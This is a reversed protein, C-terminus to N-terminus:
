GHRRPCRRLRRRTSSQQQRNGIRYNNYRTIAQPGTIIQLSAISELPVMDGKVNRIYINWLDQVQRRHAADGELNVQWTRDFLNFDNIFYSGSTAQLTTFIENINLGLSQAKHRDIDLYLSPANAGYTSFVRALRHDQNAAAVLGRVVSALSAPDAGEFSELQYEFGGATGM